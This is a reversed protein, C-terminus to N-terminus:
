KRRKKNSKAPRSTSTEMEIDLDDVSSVDKQSMWKAFTGILNEIRRLDSPNETKYKICVVDDTVKVNVKGERFRLLVRTKRPEKGYLEKAANQFDEWDTVYVM